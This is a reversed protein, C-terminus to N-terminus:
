FDSLKMKYAKAVYEKCMRHTNFYSAGHVISAKMKGIWRSKRTNYYLPMITYELIAMLDYIDVIPWGGTAMKFGEITWGDVTSFHPVGNHAAKMGSTGSAEMPPRPTNLWVDVGATLKKGLSINYDELYVMKIKGKLIHAIDLLGAITDKGPQDKKHAKGAFIFQLKGKGINILQDIREFIMMANKYTAARRAFGITLVDPDFRSGPFEREIHDILEQKAQRHAYWIEGDPIVNAQSLLEPNEMWGPIYKSFVNQMAPHTWSVSHVGNTIHTINPNHFMERSVKGHLESVGNIFRSFYIALDSMDLEYEGAYEKIKWPMMDKAEGKFHNNVIHYPFKDHGAPVPTHTTFVCRQKVAKEDYNLKRFLELTLFASHGENMHFVEVDKYYDVAELARIGGIGLIMEQALRDGTYLSKTYEKATSSNKPHDTCLFIIPVTRNSIGKIRTRWINIHVDEGMINVKVTKGTNEILKKPDWEDALEIQKGQEIKQKFYGEKYLLTVGVVPVGLDAFSKLTDGALIGLGGSYTKIRENFGIEASFYAIKRIM